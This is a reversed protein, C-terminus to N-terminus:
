LLWFKPLGYDNLIKGLKKRSSGTLQAYTKRELRFRGLPCYRYKVIEWDLGEMPKKDTLLEVFCELPTREEYDFPFTDLIFTDARRSRLLIEYGDANYNIVAIANVLNSKMKFDALWDAEELDSVYGDMWCSHFTYPVKISYLEKTDLWPVRPYDKAKADPVWISIDCKPYLSQCTNYHIVYRDHNRYFGHEETPHHKKAYKISEGEMKRFEEKRRKSSCRFWLSEALEYLLIFPSIGILIAVICKFVLENKDVGKRVNEIPKWEITEKESKEGGTKKKDKKKEPCPEQEMFLEKEIKENKKM